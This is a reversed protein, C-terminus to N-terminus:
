ACYRNFNMQKVEKIVRQCELIEGYFLLHCNEIFLLHMDDELSHQREDDGASDIIKQKMELLKPLVINNITM